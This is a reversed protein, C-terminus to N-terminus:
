SKFQRTIVYNKYKSNKSKRKNKEIESDSSQSSASSSSSSSETTENKKKPKNPKLPRQNKVKLPSRSRSRRRRPSPTRSGYKRYTEPSIRKSRERKRRGRALEVKVGKRGCLKKGQLDYVADKADREKYFEVYAFGPPNRAVFISKISGYDEFEEELDSEDLPEAGLKGVYVKGMKETLCDFDSEFIPHTGM